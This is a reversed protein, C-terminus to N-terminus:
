IKLLCTARRLLIRKAGCASKPQYNITLLEYDMGDMDDMDDIFDILDILDM